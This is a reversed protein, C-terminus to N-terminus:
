NKALAFCYTLIQNDKFEFFVSIEDKIIESKFYIIGNSSSECVLKEAQVSKYGLVVDCHQQYAKYISEKASFLIMVWQEIKFQLMSQNTFNKLNAEHESLIKSEIKKWNELNQVFEIDVGLSLIFKDEAVLSVAKNQYKNKKHSISGVFGAPFIPKRDKVQIAIANNIGLQALAANACLRGAVFEQQRGLSANIIQESIFNPHSQQPLWENQWGYCIALIASGVDHQVTQTEIKLIDNV